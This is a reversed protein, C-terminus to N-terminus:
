PWTTTAWTLVTKYTAVNDTITSGLGVRQIAAPFNRGPWAAVAFSAPQGLKVTGVDAEDVKVRLEMRALDEALMFLVPITMAEVVAQGPEVKRMLVVGDVPSRITGKSLKTQDTKLM